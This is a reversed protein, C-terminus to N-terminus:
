LIILFKQKEPKALERRFYLFNALFKWKRFYFCIKESHKKKNKVSPFNGGLIYSTKKFLEM